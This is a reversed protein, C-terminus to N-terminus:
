PADALRARDIKGNPTLDFVAVQEFRRPVMYYPLWDALHSRLAGPDIRATSPQVYAILHPDAADAAVVVAAREVDPHAALRAEIEGAEIRLGRLKLQGDVRGIFEYRGDTRRCVRDGSRYALQGPAGGPDPVFRARTLDPRNLYGHSVGAGAIWLEGGKHDAVPNGDDDRMYVRVGDIPTGITPLGDAAGPPEVDGAMTIVTTETPGYVNVVRAGFSAAPRNNLREGGTVLLRLRSHAPRALTMFQEALPSTLWATTIEHEAAWRHVAHPFPRVSDPVLHVSAGVCLYPWMELVSADFTFSSVEASRDAATIEFAPIQWRLLNLVARQPVVVGKPEGTSGSTYMVYMVDEPGVLMPPCSTDASPAAADRLGLVPRGIALNEDAVVVRLDANDAMFRTRRLPLMPDLYVCAAGARNIGLMAVVALARRRAHLGVLDGPAVGAHGLRRALAASRADLEAYTFSEAADALALHGPMRRTAAVVAATVTGHENVPSM